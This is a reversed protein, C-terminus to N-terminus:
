GNGRARVARLSRWNLCGEAGRAELENNTAFPLIKLSASVGM